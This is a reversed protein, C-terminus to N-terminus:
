PVHFFVTNDDRGVVAAREGTHLLYLGVALRYPGPSAEPAVTLQHRDAIIEGPLWSHTPCEGDCPYSDRQAAKDDGPTLVHVFVTYDEAIPQMAQWTLTLTLTPTIETPPLIQYDLLAIQPAEAGVPQVMAFPEPGPDLQTFRPALYAYSAVITLALLGAWAPTGALREDLCIVSGALFALPLGALTLLQWPYTLLASAGSIRWLLASPSLTLLVLVALVVVWFWLARGLPASRVSLPTRAGEAAGSRESRGRVGLAVAVVSLGVAVLGLQFSMGDAWGPVSIGFDWVASLLQFPYLFHSAFLLPAESTAPGVFLWFAFLLCAIASALRVILHQGKRTILVNYAALLPLYLAVLGPQTWAATVMSPLGIALAALFRQQALQDVAWLTFPLVAWLWAEAYAGRVYATSVHWPLYTYVVASLVGGRPGLWQRTWAYTGLAGLVFALAYGWKVAIVGSGSLQWFPWVLLYPLKGDGRVPDPLRGWHPANALNAANFAPLFGSHAQFFGPYTLPAVALVTLLAVLLWYSCSNRKGPTFRMWFKAV